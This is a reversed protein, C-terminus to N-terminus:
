INYNVSFWSKLYLFVVYNNNGFISQYVNTLTKM